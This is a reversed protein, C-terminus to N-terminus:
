DGENCSITCSHKPLPSNTLERNYVPIPEQLVDTDQFTIGKVGPAWYAISDKTLHQACKFELSFIDENPEIHVTNRLKDLWDAAAEKARCIHTHLCKDCPTNNEIKM